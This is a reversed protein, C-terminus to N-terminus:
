SQQAYLASSTCFMQWVREGKLEM